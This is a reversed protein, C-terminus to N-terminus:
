WCDTKKSGERIVGKENGMIMTNLDSVGSYAGIKFEQDQLKCAKPNGDYKNKASTKWIGGTASCDTQQAKTSDPQNNVYCIGGSSKFAITTKDTVEPCDTDGFGFFGKRKYAPSGSKDIDLGIENFNFCYTSEVAYQAGYVKTGTGIDARLAMKVTRKKYLKYSPIGIGILVGILGVTVLVEILSFGKCNTIQKKM